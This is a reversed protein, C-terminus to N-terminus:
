PAVEHQGMQLQDVGLIEPDEGGGRRGSERGRGRRRALSWWVLGGFAAGVGNALVDWGSATRYALGAQVGELAAGYAVALAVGAAARGALRGPRPQLARCALVALLGYCAAHAILDPPIVLIEPPRLGHLRLASGALLLGGYAILLCRRLVLRRRAM